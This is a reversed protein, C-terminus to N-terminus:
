RYRFPFVWLRLSSEVNCHDVLGRKWSLEKPLNKKGIKRYKKIYWTLEIILQQVHIGRPRNNQVDPRQICQQEYSMPM